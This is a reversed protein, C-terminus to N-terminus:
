RLHGASPLYHGNQTRQLLGLLELETLAIALEDCDQEGICLKALTDEGHGVRDLVSTLRPELVPSDAPAAPKPATPPAVSARPRARVRPRPSRPRRTWRTSVGGLADLADRGSCIAPAGQAILANSGRSSPSDIPGPVAAVPTHRSRAVEVSSWDWALEGAEVVLVLDALLALTRGSALQAWFPPEGCLLESVRCQGDGSDGHPEAGLSAPIDNAGRSSVVITHGGAQHAGAHAAAGLEDEASALTVGSAAIERSLERASRVGYDSPDQVGAIAVVQCKSLRGFREASGSIRIAHPALLDAALRRPYACHHRCITRTPRPERALRDAVGPTWREWVERLEARRAGGLADILEVDGLQLAPWLRTLDRATRDLPETLRTLLWTRRACRFCVGATAYASL